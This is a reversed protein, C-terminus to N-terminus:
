LSSTIPAVRSRPAAALQLCLRAAVEAGRCPLPEPPLPAALAARIAAATRHPDGLVDTGFMQLLGREALRRCREWQEERPRRRPAVLLRTGRALTEYVTNYGGMAVVLDAREQLEGMAATSRLLELRADDGVARRLDAFAEAGLLPGAVVTATVAADHMPGRLAAVVSRLLEFGDEGGGATVLLHPVANAASRRGRVAAPVVPGVFLTRGAVEDPFGYERVPDFVERDGYVLVHDYFSAIAEFSRQTRLEARARMPSDLVDRMGLVIRTGQYEHRLRQLVPLLEEGPGLVTHDVLLLDPRFSRLTTALLNSRLTTVEGLGIPLRRPVYQGADNKGISPLKILDCREPLEFQDPVPSGTVCLAHVNRGTAVMASALTVSRRLHGLGYSDHSYCVIRCARQSDPGDSRTAPSSANVGGV